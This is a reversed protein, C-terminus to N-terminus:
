INHYIFYNLTKGSNAGTREDLIHINRDHLGKTTIFVNEFPRTSTSTVETEQSPCNVTVEDVLGKLFATIVVFAKCSLFLRSDSPLVTSFLPLNIRVSIKGDTFFMVNLLISKVIHM